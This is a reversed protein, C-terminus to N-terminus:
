WDEIVVFDEGRKGAEYAQKMLDVIDFVFSLDRSLSVDEPEMNGISIKRQDNVSLTYREIDSFSKYDPEIYKTKIIM